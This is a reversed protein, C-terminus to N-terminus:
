AKPPSTKILTYYRNRDNHIVQYGSLLLENLSKNIRKINKLPKNLEYYHYELYINRVDINEELINELVEFEAGEIDLKLYDIYRHGLKKMISSLKNAEVEIYDNTNQINNISCSVHNPDEPLFFKLTSNEKWLAIEEFQIKKIESDSVDYSLGSDCHYQQGQLTHDKLEKFHKIAKPTPDFITVDCGYMRVLSIDSHIDEGAGFSYVISSETLSKEPVMCFSYDNGIKEIRYETKHVEIPYLFNALRYIFYNYKNRLM